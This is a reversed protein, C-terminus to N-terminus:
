KAFPFFRKMFHIVRTHPPLIEWQIILNGRGVVVSNQRVPMGAGPIMHKGRVMRDRPYNIFLFLKQGDLGDLPIRGGQSRLSEIWPLRIDMILDDGVRTFRDHPAEEIIFAIDQRTGDKREHGVGRCLIKTGARCGPPIDLEIVVDKTKRSVLYRTIGFRCHKGTLLEELSLPLSYVWEKSTGLGISTLPLGYPPPHANSTIGFRTAYTDDLPPPRPSLISYPPTEFRSNGYELPQEGNFFPPAHKPLPPAQNHPVPKHDAPPAPAHNSPSPTAKGPRIPTRFGHLPPSFRRPRGSQKTSPRPPPAASPCPPARQSANTPYVHSAKQKTSSHRSEQFSSPPTTHSDVTSTLVHVLSDSSSAPSPEPVRRTPPSQPEPHNRIASPRRQIKPLSGRERVLARYANNVQVFNKTAKEKDEHHRDPHWKLAMTKYAQKVEDMTANEAVGLVRYPNPPM